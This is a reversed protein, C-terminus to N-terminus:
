LLDEKSLKLLDKIFVGNVELQPVTRFGNSLVREKAANDVSIDKVLYFINWNDLRTKLAKCGSCNTSSYLIINM